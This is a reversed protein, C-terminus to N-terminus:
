WVWRLFFFFFGSILLSVVVMSRCSGLGMGNVLDVSGFWLVEVSGGHEAM